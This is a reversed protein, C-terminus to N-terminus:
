KKFRLVLWISLLMGLGYSASMLGYYNIGGFKLITGLFMSLGVVAFFLSALHLFSLPRKLQFPNDNMTPVNLEGKFFVKSAKAFMPLFICCVIFPMIIMMIDFEGLGPMPYILNPLAVLALFAAKIKATRNWNKM